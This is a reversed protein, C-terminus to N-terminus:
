ERVVTGRRLLGDLYDLNNNRYFTKLYLEDGKATRKIVALWADRARREFVAVSQDKTTVITGSAMLRALQAYDQPKLEPHKASQKTATEDSFLVTKVEVDLATRAESPLIAVPVRGEAEGAQIRQVRWSTALDATIAQAAIEPLAEVGQVLLTEMHQVRLKGPNRSWAPDVGVPVDRVEGTRRNVKQSRPVNPAENVGLRAAERASIQRVWCNCGWGNPPMWEDWFPDDVPLVLGEKEEHDHRHEKSPGLNYQLYPMAEKTREIREWQGAARAARLNARYITKLRRPSGLQVPKVQGTLPDEMLKKGWWGKKELTPRLQKQFDAFTQGEDLASQVAEKIDQLLDLEAVKAVAFAVAHEEPEVDLFSFSPELKKNRLFRSAEPPPGPDFSYAPRDTM